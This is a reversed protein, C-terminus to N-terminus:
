FNLYNKYQVTIECNKILDSFYTCFMFSLWLILLFFIYRLIHMMNSLESESTKNEFKKMHFVDICNLIMFLKCWWYFIFYIFIFPIRKHIRLVKFFNIVYTIGIIFNFYFMNIFPKLLCSKKKFLLYKFSTTKNDEFTKKKWFIADAERVNKIVENLNNVQVSSDM